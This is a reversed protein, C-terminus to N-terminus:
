EADVALIVEQREAASMAAKKKKELLLRCVLNERSQLESTHEESRPVVALGQVGAERLGSLMNGALPGTAVKDLLADDTVLFPAHLAQFRPTGLEDWAAAGIWGLDLSGNRVNRAVQAEVDPREHGAADYIVRVRLKGGSLKAVQNGFYELVWTTNPDDQTDVDGLRLVLPADSGGAKDAGRVRHSTACGTLVAVALASALTSAALHRTGRVRRM